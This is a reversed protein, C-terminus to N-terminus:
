TAMGVPRTRLILVGTVLSGVAPMFLWGLLLAVALRLSPTSSERTPAGLGGLGDLEDSLQELEPGIRSVDTRTDNLSGAVADLTEALEAAQDASTSFEDVLPLLPQAGFASLGMASALSDLTASADRALAAATDSSSQAEWLSADINTFSDAAADTSRAAAALTADADTALREVRSAVDLGIVATLVVLVIGVIGYAVLLSGMTRRGLRM